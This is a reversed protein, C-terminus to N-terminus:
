DELGLGLEGVDTVEQGHSLIGKAGPAVDKNTMWSFLFPEHMVEELFWTGQNSIINEQQPVTRQCSFCWPSM